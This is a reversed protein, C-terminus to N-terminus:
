GNLIGGFMYEYMWNIELLIDETFKVNCYNSCLDSFASIACLFPKMLIHKGEQNQYIQDRYVSCYDMIEEKRYMGNRRFYIELDIEKEVDIIETNTLLDEIKAFLKIFTETFYSNYVYDKVIESIVQRSIRGGDRFLSTGQESFLMAANHYFNEIGYYIDNEDVTECFNYEKIVPHLEANVITTQNLIELIQKSYSICKLKTIIYYFVCQLVEKANSYSIMEKSLFKYNLKELRQEIVRLEGASFIRQHVRHNDIRKIVTNISSM